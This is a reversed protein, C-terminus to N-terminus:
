STGPLRPKMGLGILLSDVQAYVTPLDPRLRQRIGELFALVEGETTCSALGSSRVTELAQREEATRGWTGSVVIAAMVVPRDMLKGRYNGSATRRAEVM